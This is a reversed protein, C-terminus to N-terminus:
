SARASVTWPMRKCCKQFLSQGLVMGPVSSSSLSSTEKSQNPGCPRGKEEDRGGGVVALEYM